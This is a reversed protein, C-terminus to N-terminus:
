LRAFHRATAAEVDSQPVRTGDAVVVAALGAPLADLEANHEVHLDALRALSGLDAPLTRLLNHGLRLAELNPALQSFLGDPVAALRNHNLNVERLRMLPAAGRPLLLQPLESLGCHDLALERLAAFGGLAGEPLTGLRPNFSAAIEM